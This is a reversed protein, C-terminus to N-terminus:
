RIDNTVDTVKVNFIQRIDPYFNDVDILREIHHEWRKSEELFSEDIDMYMQVHVTKREPMKQSRVIETASLSENNDQEEVMGKKKMITKLDENIMDVLSNTPIASPDLGARHLAYWMHTYLRLSEVPDETEKIRKQYQEWLEKLSSATLVERGYRGEMENKM